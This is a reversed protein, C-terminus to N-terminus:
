GAVVVGGRAIGGCVSRIAPRKTIGDLIPDSGRCKGPIRQAHHLQTFPQLNEAMPLNKHQTCKPSPVHYLKAKGVCFVVVRLVAVPDLLLISVIVLQLIACRPLRILLFTPLALSHAYDVWVTTLDQGLLRERQREERKNGCATPSKPQGHPCFYVAPSCGSFLPLNSPPKCCIPPHTQNTNSLRPLPVSRQPVPDTM